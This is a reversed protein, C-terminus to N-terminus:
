LELMAKVRGTNMTQEANIASVARGLARLIKWRGLGLNGFYRIKVVDQNKQKKYPMALYADASPTYFVGEFNEFKKYFILESAKFDSFLTMLTKGINTDTRFPTGTVVLVKSM